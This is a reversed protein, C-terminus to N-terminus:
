ATSGADVTVVTGTINRAKESLLFEVTNAVDEVDPLRGLASRRVVRQREEDGLGETLATDIFGPAVANVTVGLKGVERALSRTFGISAAKTAGYVSLANYGTFAIISSINVIRGGGHTMMSRVVYKSLMMPSLVNVRVLQEIDANRMTALLGDTGIGANNVLGNLAQFRKRLDRVLDPIGAIDGLDFPVFHLRGDVGEAQSLETLEGSGRRAIAIVTDGGGILKRTVALGIGRSAGTVVINRM